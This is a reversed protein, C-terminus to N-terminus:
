LAMILERQRDTEAFGHAMLPANFISTEPENIIRLAGGVHDLGACLAAAYESGRAALDVIYTMGDPWARFLAYADPSDREGLYLARLGDMVLLAPLDRQWAPPQLHLRHFHRLLEAPAGEALPAVHAPPAAERRAGNRELILLERATRMGASEYLRAAALNQQLVELTLLRVHCSRAEAVLARMLEHALGRGRSKLTIGFGGVWGVEGRLGLLAMGALEDAADYALLSHHIDLHEFRTRRALREGTLMMPHFYGEFAANFASAVQEMSATAASIIRLKDAM